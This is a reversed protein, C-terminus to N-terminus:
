LRQVSVCLDFSNFQGFFRVERSISRRSLQSTAHTSYTSRAKMCSLLDPQPIAPLNCLKLIIPEASTSSTNLWVRIKERDGKGDMGALHRSGKDVIAM